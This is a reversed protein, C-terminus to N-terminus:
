RFLSITLKPLVLDVNGGYMYPTRTMSVCTYIYLVYPLDLDLDLVHVYTCLLTSWSTRGSIKTSTTHFPSEIAEIFDVHTGYRPQGVVVYM